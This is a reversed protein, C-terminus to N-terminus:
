WLLHFFTKFRRKGKKLVPGHMKSKLNDKIKRKRFM